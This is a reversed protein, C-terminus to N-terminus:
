PHLPASCTFSHPLGEKFGGKSLCPKFGDIFIPSLHCHQEAARGALSEASDASSLNAAELLLADVDMFVLIRYVASVLQHM